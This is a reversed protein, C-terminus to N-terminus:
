FVCERVMHRGVRMRVGVGGRQYSCSCCRPWCRSLPRCGVVGVEKLGCGQQRNSPDVARGRGGCVRSPPLSCSHRHQIATSSSPPQRRQWGRRPRQRISRARLHQQRQLHTLNCTHTIHHPPLSLAPAAFPGASRVSPSVFSCIPVVGEDGERHLWRHFVCRRM